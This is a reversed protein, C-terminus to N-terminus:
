MVKLDLVKEEETLIFDRHSKLLNISYLVLNKSESLLNLYLMANRTGIIEDKILKLQRKKIKAILDLIARQHLILKNIDKLNQKRFTTAIDNLLSNIEENLHHLDKVQEKILPPHNNDIHEYLPQSIYTLCHAIERLYDLTQVYYQGAELSNEELKRLVQYANNKLSKVQHNLEQISKLTKKMKKRDERALNLISSFYLKAVHETIESITSSCKRIISEGKIEAQEEFDDKKHVQAFIKKHLLNTRILFYAAAALALIIAPIGGW